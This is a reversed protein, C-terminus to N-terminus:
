WSGRVCVGTVVNDVRACRYVRTCLACLAVMAYVHTRKYANDASHVFAYKYAITSPRMCPACPKIRMM